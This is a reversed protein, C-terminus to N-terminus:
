DSNAKIQRRLKAITEGDAFAKGAEESGVVAPARGIVDLNSLTAARTKRPRCVDCGTHHM